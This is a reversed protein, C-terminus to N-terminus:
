SLTNGVFFGLSFRSRDSNEADVQFEWLPFFLGLLFPTGGELSKTNRFKVHHRLAPM